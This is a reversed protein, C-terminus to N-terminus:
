AIINNKLKKLSAGDWKRYYSYWSVSGGVTVFM